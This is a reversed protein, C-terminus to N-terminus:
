FAYRLVLGWGSIDAGFILRAGLGIRSVKGARSSIDAELAAGVEFFHDFGLERRSPGAFATGGALGVLSLPYGGLSAHLPHVVELDVDITTAHGSFEVVESSADWTEVRNHTLSSHARFTVPEFAREYDLAVSGGVVWADADWDFAINELAPKLVTNGLVGTYRADNELRVIGADVQPVLTLSETLPIEIGAGLSGGAATWNSRIREGPLVDLKAELELWTLNAQMFPRWGSDGANFVWRLPVRQVDLEPDNTEADDVTYHATSIEPIVSFNVMAAYGAGFRNAGFGERIADRIEEIAAEDQAFAPM